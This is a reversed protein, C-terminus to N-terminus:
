TPAVGILKAIFDRRLKFGREDCVKSGAKGFEAASAQKTHYLSEARGTIFSYHVLGELPSSTTLDHLADRLPRGEHKHGELHGQTATPPGADAKALAVASM